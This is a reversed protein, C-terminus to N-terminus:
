EETSDAEQMSALLASLQQKQAPTMSSIDIVPKSAKVLKQTAPTTTTRVVHSVGTATTKNIVGHIRCRNETVHELAAKGMAHCSMEYQGLEADTLQQYTLALETAINALRAGIEVVYRRHIAQVALMEAFLEDKTM